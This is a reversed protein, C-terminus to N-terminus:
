SGVDVPDDGADSFDFSLSRPDPSILTMVRTLKFGKGMVHPIVLIQYCSRPTVQFLVTFM